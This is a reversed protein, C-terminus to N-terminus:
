LTLTIVFIHSSRDKNKISFKELMNKPLDARSRLM